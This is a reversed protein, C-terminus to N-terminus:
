VPEAVDGAMHRVLGALRDRDHPFAWMTHVSRCLRCRDIRFRGASEASVAISVGEGLSFHYAGLYRYCVRQGLVDAVVDLADLLDPEPRSGLVQVM